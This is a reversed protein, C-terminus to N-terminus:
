KQRPWRQHRMWMLGQRQSSADLVAEGNPKLQGLLVASKLGM